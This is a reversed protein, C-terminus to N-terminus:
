ARPRAIPLPPHIATIMAFPYGCEVGESDLADFDGFQDSDTTAICGSDFPTDFFTGVTIAGVPYTVLNYKSM